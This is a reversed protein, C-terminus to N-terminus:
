ADRPSDAAEMEKDQVGEPPAAGPTGDDGLSESPEEEPEPAPEVENREEETDAEPVPEGTTPNVGPDETTSM